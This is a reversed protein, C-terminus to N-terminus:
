KVELPFRRAALHALFLLFAPLVGMYFRFALGPNPGPNEGSQYGFLWFLLLFSLGMLALSLRTLFGTVGYYLGERRGPDQDIAAALVLDGSVQAGAFALGVLVGVLVAQPLSQPLLLLLSFLGMLLLAYGWARRGGWRRALREWLFAGPFAMLFVSAFLYTTTAEPLNLSYKAYFPMGTQLLSRAFTYLISGLLFVRFAANQWAALLSPFLPPPPLNQVQPDEKLGLLFFLFLGGGLAAFALAMTSFGYTAYVWPALGIGILLGGVQFALKAASAQARDRLSKYLEPLLASYNTWLISGFGEYLFTVLAFYAFLLGAERLGVPPTYVAFFLLAWFPLSVLMWPKRRGLRTRTRDSLYGFLPDNVADWLAYLTRWFAFAAVPLGLRDLYFYSLFTGFAESPITLALMGLGYRWPKM